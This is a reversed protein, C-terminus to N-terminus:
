DEEGGTQGRGDLVMKKEERPDLAVGERKKRRAKQTMEALACCVRGHCHPKKRLKQATKERLGIKGTVPTVEGLSLRDKGGAPM